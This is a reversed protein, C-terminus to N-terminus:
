LWAILIGSRLLALHGTSVPQSLLVKQCSCKLTRWQKWSSAQRKSMRSPERRSNCSIIFLFIPKGSPETPLSGAQLVLSASGIGPHLLNGPPPCSLASRYEQRSFGMSLPAQHAVTWPTAFLWVRSFHSLMCMFPSVFLPPCPHPAPFIFAPEGSVLLLLCFGFSSNFSCGGERCGRRQKHQSSRGCGGQWGVPWRAALHWNQLWDKTLSARRIRNYSLMGESFHVCTMLVCSLSNECFSGDGTMVGTISTLFHLILSILPEQPHHWHEVDQHHHHGFQASLSVSDCWIYVKDGHLIFLYFMLPVRHGRGAPVSKGVSLWWCQLKHVLNTRRFRLAFARLKHEKLHPAKQEPRRQPAERVARQLWLDQMGMAAAYLKHRNLWEGMPPCTPSQWDPVWISLAIIFLGPCTVPAWICLMELLLTQLDLEEVFRRKVGKVLDEGVTRNRARKMRINLDFRTYPASVLPTVTVMQWEPYWLFSFFAPWSGWGTSSVLEFSQLIIHYTGHPGTLVRSM